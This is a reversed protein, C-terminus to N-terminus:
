ADLILIRRRRTCAIKSAPQGHGARPLQYFDRRTAKRKVWATQPHNLLVRAVPIGPAICM